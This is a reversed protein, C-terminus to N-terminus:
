SEMIAPENNIESRGTLQLSRAFNEGFFRHFGLNVQRGLALFIESHARQISSLQRPSGPSTKPVCSEATVKQRQNIEIWHDSNRHSRM